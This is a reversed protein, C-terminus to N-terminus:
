AGIGREWAAVLRAECPHGRLLRRIEPDEAGDACARAIEFDLAADDAADVTRAADELAPRGGLHRELLEAMGGLFAERHANWQGPPPLTAAVVARIGEPLAPLLRKPSVIVWAEPDRRLRDWRATFEELCGAVDDAGGKTARRPEACVDTRWGGLTRFLALFWGEDRREVEPLV